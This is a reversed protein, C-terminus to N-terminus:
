IDDCDELFTLNLGPLLRNPFLRHRRQPLELYGNLYAGGAHFADNTILLLIENISNWGLLALFSIPLEQNEGAM